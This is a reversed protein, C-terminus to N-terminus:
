NVYNSSVTKLRAGKRITNIQRKRSVNLQMALTNKANPSISGRQLGYAFTNKRSNSYTWGHVVTSNYNHRIGQMPSTLHKQIDSQVNQKLNCQQTTQTTQNLAQRSCQQKSFANHTPPALNATVVTITASSTTHIGSSGKIGSTRFVKVPLERM